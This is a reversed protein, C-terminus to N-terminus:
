NPFPSATAGDDVPLLLLKLAVVSRELEVVLKLEVAAALRVDALEVVTMSEMVVGLMSGEELELNDVTVADGNSAVCAETSGEDFWVTSPVGEVGVEDEVFAVYV